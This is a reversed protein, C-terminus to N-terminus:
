TTEKPFLSVLVRYPRERYFDHRSYETRVEGASVLANIIAADLSQRGIKGDEWQRVVGDIVSRLDKTM